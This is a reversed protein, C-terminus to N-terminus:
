ANEERGFVVWRKGQLSERVLKVYNDDDFYLMMGAQEGGNEPAFHVTLTVDANAADAPWPRVLLNKADNKKLWLTGAQCLIELKEQEIRWHERDERVWQRPAAPPNNLSDQIVAGDQAALLVILLGYLM